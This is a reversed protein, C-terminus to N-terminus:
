SDDEFFSVRNDLLSFVYSKGQNLEYENGGYKLYLPFNHSEGRKVVIDSNNTLRLNVNQKAIIRTFLDSQSIFKVDRALLFEIVKSHLETQNNTNDWDYSYRNSIPHDLYGASKGILISYDPLLVFIKGM